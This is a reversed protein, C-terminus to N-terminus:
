ENYILFVGDSIHKRKITAEESVGEGRTICIYEAEPDVIDKDPNLFKFSYTKYKLAALIPNHYFAKSNILLAIIMVLMLIFVVLGRFTSVDDTLLPLVYTVLFIASGETETNGVIIQEGASIFGSNQIGKFGLAIFLTAIMWALGLASVFLGGFAQHQFAKVVVLFGSERIESFFKCILAWYLSCDLHKITLLLFLPAFSQVVLSRKVRINEKEM